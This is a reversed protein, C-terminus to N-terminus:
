SARPPQNVHLYEKLDSVLLTYQDETMQATSEIGVAGMIEKAKGKGGIHDVQRGLDLLFALRDDMQMPQLKLPKREPPKKAPMPRGVAAEGDDDAQSIGVLAALGYRRLYTVASGLGQADDKTPKVGVVSSISQGSTHLLMTTVTVEGDHRGLLQIVALGNDTLPKRCADWISALDAYKSRFHPNESDKLAPKMEAQAKVLATALKDLRPEHEEPPPKGLALDQHGLGELVTTM